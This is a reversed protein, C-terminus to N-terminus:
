VSNPAIRRPPSAAPLGSSATKNPSINWRVCSPQRLSVKRQASNKKASAIALSITQRVCDVSKQTAKLTNPTIGSVSANAASCYGNSVLYSARASAEVDLLFGQITDRACSAVGSSPHERTGAHKLNGCTPFMRSATHHAASGPGLQIHHFEAGSRRHLAGRRTKDPSRM